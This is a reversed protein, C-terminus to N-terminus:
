RYLARCPMAQMALCCARRWRARRATSALLRGRGFHRVPRATNFLLRGRGDRLTRSKADEFNHVQMTMTMM